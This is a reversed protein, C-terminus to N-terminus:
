NKPSKAHLIQLEQLKKALAKQEAPTNSQDLQDQLAQRESRKQQNILATLYDKFEQM